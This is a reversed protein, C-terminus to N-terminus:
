GTMGRRCNSNVLQITGTVRKEIGSIPRSGNHCVVISPLGRETSSISTLIGEGQLHLRYRIHSDDLDPFAVAIRVVTELMSM